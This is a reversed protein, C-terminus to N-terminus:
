RLTRARHARWRMVPDLARLWGLIGCWVGTLVISLVLHNWTLPVWLGLPLLAVSRAGIFLAAGAAGFAFWAKPSRDAVVGALVSLGLAAASWSISGPGVVERNLVLDWAFGLVFALYVWRRDHRLLAPAVIWVMPLIVLDAWLPMGPLGLGRQMVLSLLVLLAIGTM